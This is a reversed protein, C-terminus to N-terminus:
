LEVADEIEQSMIYNVRGASNCGAIDVYYEKCYLGSAVHKHKQM